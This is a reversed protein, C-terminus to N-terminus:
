VRGYEDEEDNMNLSKKNLNKLSSRSAYGITDNNNNLNASSRSRSGNNSDNTSDM